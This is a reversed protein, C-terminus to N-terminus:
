VKLEKIKNRKSKLMPVYIEEAADEDISSVFAHGPKLSQNQKKYNLKDFSLITQSICNGGLQIGEAQKSLLSFFTYGAVQSTQTNNLTMIFHLKHLRGKEAFNELLSRIIAYNDTAKQLKDLFTPLEDILIFIPQENSFELFIEEPTYDDAEMKKKRQNRDKLPPIITECMKHLGEYDRVISANEYEPLNLVNTTMDIYYVMGGKDAAMRYIIKLTNTKGVMSKGSIIYALSRDLAISHPLANKMNYAFPLLRNDALAEQVQMNERFDEYCADQPITPIPVAKAGDWGTRLEKAFSIMNQARDYDSLKEDVLAIQCELAFDDVRVLGRGKVGQEPLTEIRMLSIAEAYDFKDKMELPYVQTFNKSLKSSIDGAYLSAATFILYIGYAIGESSLKILFDEIEDRVQNRFSSYQDIYLVIVPLKNGARKNYDAFSQGRILKKREELIHKILHILRELKEDENEFVIGGCHPFNEFCGTIRSSYDIGYIQLKDPTNSSLLAYLLTQLFTSKGSGPLGIILTNGMSELNYKLVFQEQNHPHDVLGIAVSSLGQENISQELATLKLKRWEIREPLPELWLPKVPKYNNEEFIMALYEIVADLQTKQLETPLDEGNLELRSMYAKRIEEKSLKDNDAIFQFLAYLKRENRENKEINISNRKLIGELKEIIQAETKSSYNANENIYEIMLEIIKLIWAEKKEKALKRQNANGVISVKGNLDLMNAIKQNQSGDQEQYVAGSYGSQFLEYVEDQGVQMYCRGPNTLYAADPKKLMDKSDQVDQVRLCLRFKSNSWINDDVTGAPKQTSLILHVGLSRGVQAVSILQKMFDPEERKLEAFEDVIILLHPMPEAIGGEKYLRTYNNINNVGAENLMRQRRRNESKISALARQIQNGSLNSIAGVMHPLGDFLNAMGGGKYDIIFYAVDDPSFNIALSLLYTQLTESKGSGTTGAILGHPGHYKEHIDLFCPKGGDKIGVLSSMSEYSRNKIWRSYVGIESLSNVGYMKIFDIGAPLGSFATNEKVKYTALKRAAMDLDKCSIYDFKIGVRDEYDALLSYFGKFYGENQIVFDVENPLDTVSDAVIITHLGVNKKSDVYSKILEGELYEKDTLMLVYHTSFSVNDKDSNFRDRLCQSLDFFVERAEDKSGAIYRTKKDTSWCHPFWKLPELSSAEVEKKEDYVAALKVDTYCNNYAIQVALLRLVDIAGERNGGSVVGIISQERLDIGVPVEKLDKFANKIQEGKGQWPDKEVRFGQKRVNIEALSPITGIGLRYYMFDRHNQNRTWLQGDDFNTPYSDAESYMRRLSARRQNYDDEIEIGKENLYETYATIRKREKEARLKNARKFNLTGWFVAITASLTATIVGVFAMSNNSAMSSIVSGAMMPIVMTMSPGLIFLLSTTSEAEKEPPNDIDFVKKKIPFVTRPSRHFLASNKKYINKLEGQFHSGNLKKLENLRVTYTNSKTDLAVFNGLFVIRIGIISIVDGRHLLEESNIKHGNLFTGNTSSSDKVHWGGDKFHLLSHHQSVWNQPNDLVINCISDRGISIMKKDGIFVKTLDRFAEASEQFMVVIYDEEGKKIHIVDSAKLAQRGAPIKNISYSYKGANLIYWIDNIVEFALTIGNIEPYMKSEVTLLYDDNNISPLSIEKFGSVLFFTLTRIM